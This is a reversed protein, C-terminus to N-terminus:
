ESFWWRESARQNDFSTVGSIKEPTAVKNSVGHVHSMFVPVIAAGHEHYIRQMEVYLERRKAEDFESEAQKLLSDFREDSWGTENWSADKTYALNFMYDETVGGDWHTVCFPAKRWVNDWYGDDPERDVEITIGCKQAAEKFMVAADVAGPYPTNSTSLRVTLDSLGAKNLYFKAKDPDYPRQPIEDTTAMFKNLPGIPTDNGLVARGGFVATRWQERDIAYKLALRVNEDGFPADMVRMPLTSHRNGVGEVIRVDPLRELFTAARPEVRGIADLSGVRFGNTLASADNIFLMEVEDFHARGEKWYSPNRKVLSRVGPTFEVLTYGGTGDGSEWDIGGGDRAPCIMFHFDTVYYPFNVSPSALVFEVVQPDDAKIDTVNTLLGKGGSTSDEKRHHNFSEIVDQATLAKGSHFAIDKRLRFLWRRGGDAPEWSEALEGVLDGDPSIEILNNRLQWGLLIAPDAENRAPDLSDSVSAQQVGMRFRGGKKPQALAPRAAFQPLILLGGAALATRTFSRRTIGSQSM